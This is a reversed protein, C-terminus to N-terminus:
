DATETEHPGGVIGGDHPLSSRTSRLYAFPTQYLFNSVRTMYIDAYGELLRTLYSKDYGARTLLGWHPNFLMGAERALPGIRGDLGLIEKKVEDIRQRLEAISGGSEPGYGQEIRQLQLRLQAQQRDLEAKQTMMKSLEAQQDRFKQLCAFEIELERLVLGTRWRLMNKTAQVDSEVHDGVYMIEGGQLGFAEEVLGAHGGAYISGKKLAGVVRKLLGEETVLEFAPQKQLFFNPKGASVIVLDFLDRWTMGDPLHPDFAYAMINGVFEWESDTILMLKKGAHKQDLLTLPIEADEVVYRAPDKLIENRMMGEAYAADLNSIMQEVLDAYGMIQSSGHRDLKDVLQAFMCAVPLDFLTTFLLWRDERIDVRIRSYIRRVTNFDLPNTGHYARKIYGFRNPKVFNGLKRDLVLGRIAMESDYELDEVPWGLELVRRKLYEYMAREWRAVDYNILTYDMDYGIAQITRMNLTRNAFIEREHPPNIILSTLADM